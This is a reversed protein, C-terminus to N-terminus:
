WQQLDVAWIQGDGSAAVVLDGAMVPGGAMHTSVARRPFDFRWRERGDAVNLAVLGGSSPAAHRTFGAIVLGDEVRPWYVTSEGQHDIIATWESRGARRTSRTCTDPRPDRSCSRKTCMAWTPVQLTATARSLGGHRRGTVRDVAVLDYEGVLVSGCTLALAHGYTIGQEGTKVRWLESGDDLSVKLLQHEATLAFVDSGDIAPRVLRPRPQAGFRSSLRTGPRRRSPSAQRWSLLSCVVGPRNIAGNSAEAGGSRFERGM